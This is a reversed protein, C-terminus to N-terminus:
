KSRKRLNANLIKKRIRLSLPTVELLEDNGIYEIGTEITIRRPPIITIAEDSSKSRVNSLKKEKCPNVEMDDDRSNQGIVQGVYVPDTADIFLVGREQISFLAYGATKGNEMSILSGHAKREFNAIYPGYDNFVHYM